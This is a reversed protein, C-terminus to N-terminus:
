QRSYLNKVGGSRPRVGGAWLRVEVGGQEVMGQGEGPGRVQGRRGSGGLRDGIKGLGKLGPGLERQVRLRVGVEGSDGVQGQSDKFGQGPGLEVSFVRVQDIVHNQSVGLGVQGPGSEGQVGQDPRPELSGGSM